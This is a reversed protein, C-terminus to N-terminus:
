KNYLNGTRAAPRTSLGLVAQVAPAVEAPLSISGAYDRFLAAGDRYNRLEVGFAKELDALKGRLTMTRAATDTDAVELGYSKAFAEVDAVDKALAGRMEALQERSLYQRESLRAAAFSKIFPGTDEDPLKSRLYVTVEATEGPNVPGCDEFSAGGGPRESGELIARAGNDPM